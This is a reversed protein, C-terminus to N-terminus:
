GFKPPHFIDALLAFGKLCRSTVGGCVASRFVCIVAVTFSLAILPVEHMHTMSHKAFLNVSPADAEDPTKASQDHPVHRSAFQSGLGLPKQVPLDVVELKKEVSMNVHIHPGTAFSFSATLCIVLLGLFFKQAKAQNLVIRLVSRFQAGLRKKRAGVKAGGYTARILSGCWFIRNILWFALRFHSKVCSSFAGVERM